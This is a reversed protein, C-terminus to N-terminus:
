PLATQRRNLDVAYKEIYTIGNSNALIEIDAGSNVHHAQTTVPPLLTTQLKQGCPLELGYLLEAQSYGNRLPSSCHVLLWENLNLNKKLICKVTQVARM